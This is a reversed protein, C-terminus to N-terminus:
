VEKRKPLTDANKSITLAQMSASAIPTQTGELVTTTNHDEETGQPHM